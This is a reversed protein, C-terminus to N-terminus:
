KPERQKLNMIASTIENLMNEASDFNYRESWMARIEDMKEISIWRTFLFMNTNNDIKKMCCIYFM